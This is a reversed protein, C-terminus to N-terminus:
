AMSCYTFRCTMSTSQGTALEVLGQGIPSVCHHADVVHSVPEFCFFDAQANPSFVLYRSMAPATNIALAVGRAPWVLQAQGNWGTFLNDILREPLAQSANFNWSDDPTLQRWERPLQAKDVDWVGETMAQIRTDVSRPFWPHLGLGYPAPKDGLHTVSLTVELSNDVLRYSLDARYDFPPQENLSLQLHLAHDSKSVVQWPWQWGDGHIPLPEGPLNAALPYHQGGWEFGGKAIRNSWPVLPYMALQNPDREDRSGPRMLAIDGSDTLADFRVVSGGIEPNVVLRLQANELTITM